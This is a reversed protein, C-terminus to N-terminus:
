RRLALILEDLKNAIQQVEGQPPPYSMAMGLLAMTNSFASTGAIAVSLAANTVEGPEGQYGQIGQIGQIGQEGQIGQVGQGGNEGNIGQPIGFTLHLTETSVSVEVTAAASPPLTNVRAVAASITTLRGDNMAACARLEPSAFHSPGPPECATLLLLSILGLRV